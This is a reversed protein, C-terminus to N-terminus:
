YGEAEWVDAEIEYGLQVAKARAEEESAYGILIRPDHADEYRGLERWIDADPLEDALDETILHWFDDPDRGGRVTNVLICKMNLRLNVIDNM